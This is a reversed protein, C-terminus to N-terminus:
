SAKECKWREKIPPCGASHLDTTNEQSTIEPICWCISYSLFFFFFVTHHIILPWPAFVRELSKLTLLSCSHEPAKQVEQRPPILYSSEKFSEKLRMIIHWPRETHIFTSSSERVTVSPQRKSSFAPLKKLVGQTRTGRWSIKRYKRLFRETKLDSNNNVGTTNMLFVVFFWFVEVATRM